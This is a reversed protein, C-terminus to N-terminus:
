RGVVGTRNILVDLMEDIATLVRAAGEYARQFALMTVTEEDLDVSSVSLQLNEATARATETVKARQTAARTQVGIDVVFARWVSDPGTEATALQAIADATSGDYTGQGVTAAAIERPDTIAISLATAAPGTGFTFFPRDAVGDLGAATATDHVGNVTTALATALDNWQDAAADLLGDEALSALHSALKGGQPELPTGAAAAWVLHVPDGAPPGATAQAMVMSGAVTVEKAEVGRVLANGAVMVDMTGDERERGSAGILGSLKTVLLARQDMLENASGGSVLISRIQENLDAVASATSNVETVLTSTETRLQAWQTEVGRHGASIQSVLAAADGLLVNRAALDEPNNGVDQWGAWFTALQAGVGTDAPENMTSELRSLADAQASHFAAGSTESRLRADLFIDGIRDITSVRVGHGAVLGTSYMSASSLAEISQLGARQRTYGVTNANAINQGAVDLAQRQAMLSSLAVSLGSFSSV